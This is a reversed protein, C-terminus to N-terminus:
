LTKQLISHLLEFNIPKELYAVISDYAKAKYRDEPRGSSTTIIIPVNPCIGLRTKVSLFEWGDLVSMNIDLFIIDPCTNARLFDIALQGNLAISYNDYGLKKLNATTIFNTIEDDEIILIKSM